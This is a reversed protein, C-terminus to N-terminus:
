PLKRQIQGSAPAVTVVGVSDAHTITWELRENSTGTPSFQIEAPRGRIEVDAGLEVVWSMSDRFPGAYETILLHEIGGSVMRRVAVTAQNTIATNRATTLSNAVDNTAATAERRTHWNGDLMILSAAAAVALVSIVMISEVLTVGTRNRDAFLPHM